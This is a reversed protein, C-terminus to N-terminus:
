SKEEGSLETQQLADYSPGGASLRSEFLTIARVTMTGLVIDSRGRLLDNAHLRGPERVRGLTLHPRFPREELTVGVNRIRGAVDAALVTLQESGRDIGAWIVRPRGREPFVGTGRVLCEFPAMRVPAQLAARVANLRSEELHGIFTLTLHMRAATLWTIRADPSLARVEDRLDGILKAAADAIAPSLDVAVFLRV